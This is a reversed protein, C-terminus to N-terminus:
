SGTHCARLGGEPFMKITAIVILDSLGVKLNLESLRFFYAYIFNVVSKPVDTNSFPVSRVNSSASM